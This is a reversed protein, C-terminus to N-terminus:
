LACHKFLTTVYMIVEYKRSSKKEECVLDGANGVADLSFNKSWDCGDIKLM